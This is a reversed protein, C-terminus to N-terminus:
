SRARSGPERCSSSSTTTCLVGYWLLRCAAVSQSIQLIRYLLSERGVGHWTSLYTGAKNPPLLDRLQGDM